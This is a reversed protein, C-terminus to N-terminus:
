YIINLKDRVKALTNAAIERAKMSNDMLFDVVDFHNSFDIRDRRFDRFKEILLTSLITKLKSETINGALYAEKLTEFTFLSTTAWSIDSEFAQLYSWVVHNEITTPKGVVFPVQISEVKERIVDPIDSLYICNNLSKSMKRGDLGPLRRCVENQSLLIEPEVLTKGYIENFTRVIDKTIEIMPIQDEGAPVLTAQFATIDAAQSVPYSFFGLPIDAVYNRMKIESKVTPNKQMKQVSVLNMYYATLEYLEPVQSQIFITCRSPKLGVSLYDRAVEIVNDQLKSPDRMNDTLAQADAIMVYMNEHEYQLKTRQKLSGAYHGLHLKGTPRDGTLITVM